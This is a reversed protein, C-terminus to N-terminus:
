TRLILIQFEPLIRIARGSGTHFVQAQGCVRFILSAMLLAHFLRVRGEGIGGLVPLAAVALLSVVLLCLKKM